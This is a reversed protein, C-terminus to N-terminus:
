SKQGQAHKKLYKIAEQMLEISDKFRGLGTNCSDCIWDRANGTDHDHDVVLNATIFPISSKKCIPCIFFKDPKIDNMRKKESPKIAVGDIIKRCKTCTPRTTKRGKADTQNIDFDKYDEKLIHCVNCIKYKHPKGTKTVDLFRIKSLEIDIEVNKGIFYVKAKSTTVKEVFGVSNKDIDKYKETLFVFDNVKIM